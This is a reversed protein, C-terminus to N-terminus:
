GTTPSPSKDSSDVDEGLHEADIEATIIDRECELCIIRSITHGQFDHSFLQHLQLADLSLVNLMPESDSLKNLCCPCLLKDYVSDPVKELSHIPIEVPIRPM